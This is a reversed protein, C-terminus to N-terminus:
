ALDSTLQEKERLIRVFIFTSFLSTGMFVISVIISIVGAFGHGENFLWHARVFGNFGFVGGISIIM